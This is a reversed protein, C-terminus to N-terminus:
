SQSNDLPLASAKASLDQCCVKILIHCRRCHLLGRLLAHPSWPWPPTHHTAYLGNGSASLAVLECQDRSSRGGGGIDSIRARWRAAARDCPGAAQQQSFLCDTRMGAALRGSGCVGEVGSIKLYLELAFQPHLIALGNWDRRRQNVLTQFSRWACRGKLVGIQYVGKSNAIQFCM